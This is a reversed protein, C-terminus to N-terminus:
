LDNEFGSPNNDVGGYEIDKKEPSHELEYEKRAEELDYLDEEDLKKTM